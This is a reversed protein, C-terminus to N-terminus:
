GLMPESAGPVGTMARTVGGGDATCYDPATRMGSYNDMADGTRGLLFRDVAGRAVGKFSARKQSTQRKKRKQAM